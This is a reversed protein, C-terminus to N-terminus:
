TVVSLRWFLTPLYSVKLGLPRYSLYPTASSGAVARPMDECPPFSPGVVSGPQVEAHFNKIKDLKTSRAEGAFMSLAPEPVKIRIDVVVDSTDHRESTGWNARQSPRSIM